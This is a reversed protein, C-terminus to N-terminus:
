RTARKLPVHTRGAEKIADAIRLGFGDALRTLCNFIGVIHGVELLMQDDFGLNRLSEWDGADMARPTASMKEAVECLARSRQSLTTMRRWRREKIADIL